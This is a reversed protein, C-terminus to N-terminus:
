QKFYNRQCGWVAAFIIEKKKQYKSWFLLGCFCIREVLVVFFLLGPNWFYFGQIWSFIWFVFLLGGSGRREFVELGVVNEILQGLFFSVVNVVGLLNWIGHVCVSFWHSQIGIKSQIYLNCYCLTFTHVSQFSKFHNNECIFISILFVM